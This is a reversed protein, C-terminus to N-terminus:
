KNFRRRGFAAMGLLGSGLLLLTGPEPVRATLAVNDIKAFSNTSGTNAEALKFILQYTGTGLQPILLSEHHGTTSVYSWGVTNVSALHIQENGDVIAAFIDFSNVSPDIFDFRWDFALTQEVHNDEIDFAQSILSDGSSVSRGLAAMHNGSQETFLTVNGSTGWGYLSGGYKEFNGNKILSVAYSDSAMAIGFALVSCAILKKM